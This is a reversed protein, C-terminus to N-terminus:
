STLCLRQLVHLPSTEPQSGEESNSCSKTKKKGGISQTEKNLGVMFLAMASLCIWKVTGPTVKSDCHKSDYLHQFESSLGSGQENVVRMSGPDSVLQNLTQILNKKKEQTQDPGIEVWCNDPKCNAFM